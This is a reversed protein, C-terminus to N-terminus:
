NGYTLLYKIKFNSYDSNGEVMKKLNRFYAIRSQESNLKNKSSEYQGMNVIPHLIGFLSIILLVGGWWQPSDFAFMGILGIALAITGATVLKTLRDHSKQAANEDILPDSPNRKIQLKLQYFQEESIYKPPNFKYHEITKTYNFRAM